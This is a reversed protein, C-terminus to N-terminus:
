DSSSFHFRYLAFRRKLFLDGTMNARTDHTKQTTLKGRIVGLINTSHGFIIVRITNHVSFANKLEIMQM